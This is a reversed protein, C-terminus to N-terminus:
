LSLRTFYSVKNGGISSGNHVMYGEQLKFVEPLYTVIEIKANGEVYSELDRMYSTDHKWKWSNQVDKYFSGLVLCEVNNGVIINGDVRPTKSLSRRPTWCIRVLWTDFLSNDLIWSDVNLAHCFYYIEDINICWDSYISKLKCKDNKEM